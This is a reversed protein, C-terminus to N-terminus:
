KEERKGVLSCFAISGAANALTIVAIYGAARLIEGASADVSFMMYCMDAISHEFGCIIFVVVGFFISLAKFLANDSRSFLDVAIFMLVGCMVGLFIAQFLNQGLKAEVLTKATQSLEPRAFRMPIVVAACGILNGLWIGAYYLFGHERRLRIAYGIKGTFLLFGYNCITFLGICFLIAGVRKDSSSLFVTTGIGICIGSLVTNRIYQNLSSPKM